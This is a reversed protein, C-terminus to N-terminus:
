GSSIAGFCPQSQTLRLNDYEARDVAELYMAVLWFPVRRAGALYLSAPSYEWGHYSLHPLQGPREFISWVACASEALHPVQWGIASSTVENAIGRKASPIVGGIRHKSCLDAKKQGHDGAPKHEM